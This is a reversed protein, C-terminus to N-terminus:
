AIGDQGQLLESYMAKSAMLMDVDNLCFLSIHLCHLYSVATQGQLLFMIDGYSQAYPQLPMVLSSDPVCQVAVHTCPLEIYLM